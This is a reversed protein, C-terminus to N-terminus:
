RVSAREAPERAVELAARTREPVREHRVAHDHTAALSRRVLHRTPTHERRWIVADMAFHHLNVVVYFAAFFPTPGLDDWGGRGVLEGDLLAPAGRFLTWGLVLAGVALAALRASAPRGFSPPGEEALAENRRLLGVFFLYQLSHLAPIVYRVLPDLASGIGWLWLTALFALLPAWPLTRERRLKAVLAVVLALTSAALLAGTAWTAWAPREPAWYVVGREVFEGAPLPPSAWAFAWAAYCHALLLARETASFRVGRRASLVALVGFGQKAYHWGVLLYMLQVMWGLAQGSRALLAYAAWGILVVPTVLGAAVYRARQLPAQTAGLAREKADDYFLLYTVAFHPDNLVHAGHFALFGIALEAEDLDVRLRVLWSIVLLLPTLAGTLLLELTTRKAAM